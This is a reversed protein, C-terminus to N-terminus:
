CSHDAKRKKGGEDEVYPSNKRSQHYLRLLDIAETSLQREDLHRQCAEQLAKVYCETEQLLHCLDNSDASIINELDENSFAIIRSLDKQLGLILQKSRDTLGSGYDTEDNDTSIKSPKNWQQDKTLIMLTSNSAVFSFYDEDDIETGDEELVVKIDDKNDLDLKKKSKELLEDLTTATVSKKLKRDHTWIKFPRNQNEASM